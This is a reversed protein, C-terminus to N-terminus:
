VWCGVPAVLAPRATPRGLGRTAAAVAVGWCFPVAATAAMVAQAPSDSATGAPVAPVATASCCGVTGALGASVARALPSGAVEAPGASGSCCGAPGALVATAAM